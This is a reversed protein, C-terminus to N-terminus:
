RPSVQDPVLARVLAAHAANLQSVPQGALLQLQLGRWASVLATAVVQPDAVSAPLADAVVAIWERRTRDLFTTHRAPDFAVQGFRAFFLRLHGRRRPAAIHRWARDLRDAIDGEAGLLARLESILTDGDLVEAVIEDLLEDLSGFYYLLMRNNSGIARALASLSVSPGVEVVYAVAAALLKARQDSNAMRM